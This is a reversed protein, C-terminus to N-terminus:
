ICGLFDLLGQQDAPSLEQFATVADTAQGGHANIADTLTAARGDHLFHSRLSVQWLPMTRWESGLASAAPVHDDLAPGMDHVLLDSYLNITRGPGPYSPTHCSACGTTAFTAAGPSALCSAAPVPPDLTELYATVAQLPVADIEPKVWNAGCGNVLDDPFLPNTLGMETRFADGMFEVLTAIQGKWGFRGIRGDALRNVKGRVGVSQATQVALIDRSQVFDMLGTGRVTMASRKSVVNAAPPVGVPLGCNFGLESISHARAVPGGAGLLPDFMDGSLIGVRTVFSDDTTGMGGPEPSNHCALCSKGNFLPGLGQFPSLERAFMNAGMAVPTTAGDDHAQRVLSPTVLGAGFAPVQLVIGGEHSTTATVWLTQADESVTLGSVTFSPGPAILYRVARIRGNQAVRVISNDGRNLVYLDSGGGLTTNSAFNDSAIEPVAPAIDVPLNVWQTL